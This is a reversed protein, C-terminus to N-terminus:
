GRGIQPGLVEEVPYEVKSGVPVDKDFSFYIEPVCECAAGRLRPCWDDHLMLFNSIGDDGVLFKDSHHLLMYELVKKDNGKKESFIKGNEGASM